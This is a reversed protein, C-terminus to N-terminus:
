DRYNAARKQLNSYVAELQNPTGILKQQEVSEDMLGAAADVAVANNLIRKAARIADPSKSAIERATEFAAERPDAVV